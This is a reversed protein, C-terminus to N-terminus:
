TAPLRPRFHLSPTRPAISPRISISLAIMRARAPLLLSSTRGVADVESEDSKILEAAILANIFSTVPCPCDRITIERQPHGEGLRADKFQPIYKSVKDDISLKKEDQLIMVATATIPKTMSAVGFLTDKTMPRQAAIDAEGVAELHVIKGKRAVLTVAGTIQKAEVFERMRPAIKALGAETKDDARSNRLAIPLSLFAVLALTSAGRSRTM